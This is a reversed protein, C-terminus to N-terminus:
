PHFIMGGIIAALGLGSLLWVPRTILKEGEIMHRILLLLAPLLVLSALVFLLLSLGYATVPHMGYIPTDGFGNM